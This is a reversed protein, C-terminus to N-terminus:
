NYLGIFSKENIQNRNLLSFILRDGIIPKFIESLDLCLSFRREGPQHLYSITPNLQTMYIESLTKTYILTNVYSILSNIMNDPPHMVRKKFDIDQDIIIPWAEYYRSRINGEYGMVEQVTTAKDIHKRYEQIDDMYTAVDKGRGNYYRLNRYINASAGKIIKKGIVLRKEYDSYHEVQKVLLKGSLLSERPYYSGIYFDYYNFFHVTIKNQTLFNLLATNLTMESMVYIDSVREVPVYGILIMKDYDGDVALRIQNEDDGEMLQVVEGTFYVLKGEYDKPNRSINDFTIGTKYDSDSYTQRESSETIDEATTSYETKNKKHTTTEEESENFTATKGCAWLMCCAIITLLLVSLKKM